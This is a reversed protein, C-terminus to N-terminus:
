YSLGCMVAGSSVFCFVCHTCLPVPFSKDGIANDGLSM